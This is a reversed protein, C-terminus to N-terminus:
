DDYKFYSCGFKRAVYENFKKSDKCICKKERRYKCRCCKGDNIKKSPKQEEISEIVEKTKDM